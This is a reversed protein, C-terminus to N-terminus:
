GKNYQKKSELWIENPKAGVFRHVPLFLAVKWEEEDIQLMRSRMNSFLYRKIAPKYYKYRSGFSELTQYSFRFRNLVRREDTEAEFAELIRDMLLARHYPDLYHFNIGLIGEKTVELPLVLPFRDYYPLTKKGKPDYNFFFLNGVMVYKIRPATKGDQNTDLGQDPITINRRFQRTKAFFWRNATQVAMSFVKNEAAAVLIKSFNIGAM